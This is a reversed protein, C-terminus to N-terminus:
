WSSPSLSTAYCSNSSVADSFFGSAMCRHDWELVVDFVSRITAAPRRVYSCVVSTTHRPPAILSLAYRSLSILRRMPAAQALTLLYLERYYSQRLARSYSLGLNNLAPTTSAISYLHAVHAIREGFKLLRRVAWWLSNKRMMPKRRLSRMPYLSRDYPSIRSLLVPESRMSVVSRLRWSPNAPARIQCPSELSEFRTMNPRSATCPSLRPPRGTTDQTSQRWFFRLAKPATGRLPLHRFHAATQVSTLFPRSQIVTAFFTPM